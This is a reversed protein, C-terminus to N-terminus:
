QQCWWCNCLGTPSSHTCSCDMTIFASVSRDKLFPDLVHLM